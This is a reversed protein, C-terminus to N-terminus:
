EGREELGVAIQKFAQKTMAKISGNWYIRAPFAIDDLTLIPIVVCRCNYIEGAQYHGQSKEGVLLEPSPPQSWPVIVGNMNQHSERTRQDQSTEWQYWEIALRECRAATLATSAKATETRSILHTRSRLLAPFRQQALKALTKPRAGSQQARMIEDTLAQAADLPLSSILAANERVLQHVRAGTAGNMEAQLARYLVQAKSSRSAAERWTKANKVNIHFIMRKALLESADQIDKQRSREALEALWQQFTQEPKKALLVRGTIAKIGQEYARQLRKTPGFEPPKKTPPTKKKPAM